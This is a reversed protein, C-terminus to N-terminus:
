PRASTRLHRHSLVITMTVSSSPISEDLRVQRPVWVVFPRQHHLFIVFRTMRQIANRDRNSVERM